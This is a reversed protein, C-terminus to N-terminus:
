KSKEGKERDLYNDTSLTMRYGVFLSVLLFLIILAYWM